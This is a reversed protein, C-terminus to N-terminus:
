SKRSIYDKAKRKEDGKNWGVFNKNTPPHIIIKIEPYNERVYKHVETDVGKCDGHHIETVKYKKMFRSFRSLQRETMGHRSGSIGLIM